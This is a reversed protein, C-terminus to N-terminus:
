TELCVLVTIESSLCRFDTLCRPPFFVGVGRAQTCKVYHKGVPFFFSFLVSFCPDPNWLDIFVHAYLQSSSLCPSFLIYDSFLNFYLIRSRQQPQSSTTCHYTPLTSIEEWSSIIAAIAPFQPESVELDLAPSFNLALALTLFLSFVTSCCASM